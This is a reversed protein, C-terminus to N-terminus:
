HKLTFRQIFDETNIRLELNHNKAEMRLNTYVLEIADILNDVGVKLSNITSKESAVGTWKENSEFLNPTYSNILEFHFLKKSAEKKSFPINVLSYNHALSNRLAIIINIEEETHKSFQILANYINNTGIVPQGKLKFSTGVLDLILLYNILGILSYPNLFNNRNRLIDFAKEGTSEIRGTIKRADSLAVSLCSYHNEAIEFNEIYLQIFKDEEVNGMQFLNPGM